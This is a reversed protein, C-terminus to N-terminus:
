RDDCRKLNKECCGRGGFGFGFGFGIGIGAAMKHAACRGAPAGGWVM